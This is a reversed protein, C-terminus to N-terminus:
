VSSFSARRRLRSPTRPKLNNPQEHKEWRIIGVDEGIQMSFICFFLNLDFDPLFGHLWFTASCIKLRRGCGSSSSCPFHDQEINHFFIGPIPFIEGWDGAKFKFFVM